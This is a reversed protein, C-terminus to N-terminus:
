IVSLPSWTDPYLVALSKGLNIALLLASLWCLVFTVITTVPGLALWPHRTAADSMHQM